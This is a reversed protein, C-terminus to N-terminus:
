GVLGMILLLSAGLYVVAIMCGGASRLGGAQSVTVRGPGFKVDHAEKTVVATDIANRALAEFWVERSDTEANRGAAVLLSELRHPEMFWQTPVLMPGGVNMWPSPMLSEIVVGYLAVVEEFTMEYHRLIPATTPDNWVKAAFKNVLQVGVDDTCSGGLRLHMLLKKEARNIALSGM